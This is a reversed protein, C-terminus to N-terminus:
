ISSKDQNEERRKEKIKYAYFRRCGKVFILRPLLKMLGTAKAITINICKSRM